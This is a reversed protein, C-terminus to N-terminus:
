EPPTLATATTTTTTTTSTVALTAAPLDSRSSPLWLREGPGSRRHQMVSARSTMMMSSMTMKMAMTVAAVHCHHQISHLPHSSPCRYSAPHRNALGLHHHHCDRGLCLCLCCGARDLRTRCLLCYLRNCGRDHDSDSDSDRDCHNTPAISDCRAPSEADARRTSPSCYYYYLRHHRDSNWRLTM